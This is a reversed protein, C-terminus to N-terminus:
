YLGSIGQHSVSTSCYQCVFRHFVSKLASSLGFVTRASSLSGIVPSNPAILTCSSSQSSSFQWFPPFLKFAISFFTSNAAIVPRLPYAHVNLHRPNVDLSPDKKSNM